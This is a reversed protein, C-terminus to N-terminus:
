GYHQVCPIVKVSAPSTRLVAFGSVPEKAAIAYLSHPRRVPPWPQDNDFFKPKPPPTDKPIGHLAVPIADAVLTM